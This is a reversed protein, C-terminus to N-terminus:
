RLFEDYIKTVKSRINKPITKYNDTVVILPSYDRDEPTKSLLKQLIPKMIDYKICNKVIWYKYGEDFEYLVSMISKKIIHKIMKTEDIGFWSPDYGLSKYHLYSVACKLCKSCAGSSPDVRNIMVYCSSFNTVKYREVLIKIELASEIPYLISYVSTHNEGYIKKAHRNFMQKIKYSHGFNYYIIIENDYFYDLTPSEDGMFSYKINNHQCYLINNINQVSAYWTNYLLFPDNKAHSTILSKDVKINQNESIETFLKRLKNKVALSAVINQKIKTNRKMFPNAGQNFAITNWQTTGTIVNLGAEQLLKITLYSDKGGSWASVVTRTKLKDPITLKETNDIDVNIKVNLPYEGSKYGLHHMSKNHQLKLFKNLFELTETRIKIGAINLTVKKNYASAVCGAQILPILKFTDIFKTDIDFKYNIKFSIGNLKWKMKNDQLEFDNITVINKM